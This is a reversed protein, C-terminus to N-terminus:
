FMCGEIHFIEYCSYYFDKNKGTSYMPHHVHNELPQTCLHVKCQNCELSTRSAKCLICKAMGTKIKPHESAKDCRRRTGEPGRYYTLMETWTMKSIDIYRAPEPSLPEVQLDDDGDKEEQIIEQCGGDFSEGRSSESAASEVNDVNDNTTHHLVSRDMNKKLKAKKAKKRKNAM